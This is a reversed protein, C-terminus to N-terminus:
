RDDGYYWRFSVEFGLLSLHVVVKELYVPHEISAGFLDFIKWDEKQPGIWEPWQNHLGISFRKM